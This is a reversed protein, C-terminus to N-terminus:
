GVVKAWTFEVEKMSWARGQAAGGDGATATKSAECAGGTRSEETNGQMLQQWWWAAHPIAHHMKCAAHAAAIKM